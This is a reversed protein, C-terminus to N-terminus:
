EALDSNDNDGASPYTVDTLTAPAGSGQYGQMAQEADRKGIKWLIDVRRNRKRGDDTTNDAIPENEGRGLATIERNHTENITTNTRLIDAVVVARNESLKLNNNVSTKRFPTGDTHGIVELDGPWPALAAGLREINRKSLFDETLESKGTLFAGDSTFILLWGRPDKRVELWGESLIQTLPNPLTEMINIKRPEPPVWALIDNRIQRAQEHLYWASIGYAIVAIILGSILIRLATIFRRRQPRVTEATVDSLYETTNQMYLLNSLHNRLDMLLVPGRELMRYKGEFGMSLIFYYFELIDRNDSPNTIYSKLHEFCNEGGWADKHFEVLLSLGTTEEKLLDNFLGDTYTCILYSLHNIEEPPFGQKRLDNRFFELKRVIQLRAYVFDTQPENRFWEVQLLLPMGASIYPNHWIGSLAGSQEAPRRGQRGAPHQAPRLPPIPNHKEYERTHRLATDPPDENAAPIGPMEEDPFHSNGSGRMGAPIIAGLSAVTSKAQWLPNTISHEARKVGTRATSIANRIQREFENM